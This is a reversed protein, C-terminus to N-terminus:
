IEIWHLVSCLVNRIRFFCHTACFITDVLLPCTPSSKPLPAALSRSCSLVLSSQRCPFPRLSPFLLLRLQVLNFQRRQLSCFIYSLEAATAVVARVCDWWSIFPSNLVRLHIAVEDSKFVFFWVFRMDLCVSVAVVLPAVCKCFAVLQLVYITTYIKTKRLVFNLFMQFFSYFKFTRRISKTRLQDNKWHDNELLVSVRM